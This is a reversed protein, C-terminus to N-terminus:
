SISMPPEPPGFRNEGISGPQCALLISYVPALIWWGSRDIDHMRRIGVAISPMLLVLNVLGGITDNSYTLVGAILTFLTWYWYSSRGSRTSFNAYNIFGSRVAQVFQM